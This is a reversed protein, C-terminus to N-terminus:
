TSTQAKYIKLIIIGNRRADGASQSIPFFELAMRLGILSRLLAKARKGNGAPIKEIENAENARSDTTIPQLRKGTKPEM